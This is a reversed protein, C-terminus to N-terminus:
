VRAALLENVASLLELRTFPKELCHVPGCIRAEAMLDRHASVALIPVHPAHQQIRVVLERGQVHPLVLDALIGDFQQDHDLLALAERGDCASVVRHGATTLIVDILM